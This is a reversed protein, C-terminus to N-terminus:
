LGVRPIAVVASVLGEDKMPVEVRYVLGATNEACTSGCIQDADPNDCGDLVEWALM